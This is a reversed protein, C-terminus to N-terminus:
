NCDEESATQIICPCCLALLIFFIPETLCLGLGFCAHVAGCFVALGFACILDDQGAMRHARSFSSVLLSLYCLLGLLGTNVLYGLYVSHANDAFSELTAGTEPVFRSFTIHLRLATTGPGGGLLPREPVLALCERWIRIRSSGFSDEPHGHLTRSLEWLTGSQGPWFWLMAFAAIVLGAAIVACVSRAKRTRPLFLLAAPVCACLALHAGSGGAPIEVSLSLILPLAFFLGSRRILLTFCLPIALCLVADLLNTNGITGLYKGSYRIGSDAYNLGAPFLGLPNGGRLQLLALVCCLSVAAGFAYAHVAKPRTFMSVGLFILCCAALTVLGDYRGAGLLTAPFDPSCFASVAAAALFALAAWQAAGPRPLFAGNRLFVILLALLWAGTATLFFVFKSLTINTYGSFGPFLLFLFLMTICYLDTVAECPATCPVMRKKRM